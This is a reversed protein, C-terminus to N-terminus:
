HDGVSNEIALIGYALHDYGEEKLQKELEEYDKRVGDRRADDRVYFRCNAKLKLFELPMPNDQEKKGNVRWLPEDRLISWRVRDAGFLAKAREPVVWEDRQLCGLTYALVICRLESGSQLTDDLRRVAELLELTLKYGHRGGDTSRSITDPRAVLSFPMNALVLVREANGEAFVPPLGRTIDNIGLFTEECGNIASNVAAFGLARASRDFGYRRSLRGPYRLLSHGCGTAPDIVCTAWNGWDFQDCCAELVLDSEDAFAFVRISPSIWLGDTLFVRGDRVHIKARLVDAQVLRLLELLRRQSDNEFALVHDLRYLLGSYEQDELWSKYTEHTGVAMLVARLEPARDPHEQLFLLIQNLDDLTIPPVEDPRATNRGVETGSIALTMESTPDVPENATWPRYHIDPMDSPSAYARIMHEPFTGDLEEALEAFAARTLRSRTFLLKKTEPTTAPADETEWGHRPAPASATELWLIPYPMGGLIEPLAQFGVLHVGLALHTPLDTVFQAIDLSCGVRMPPVMTALRYGLDMDRGIYETVITPSTRGDGTLFDHVELHPEIIEIEGEVVRIPKNRLPFGATWVCGRVGVKKSLYSRDFEQVVDIFSRLSTGLAVHRQSLDPYVLETFVIADGNIKWLQPLPAIWADDTEDERMTRIRERFAGIFDRFYRDFVAPWADASRGPEEVPRRSKFDVGGYLEAALFLRLQQRRDAIPRTRASANV